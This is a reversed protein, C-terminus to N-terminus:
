GAPRRSCRRHVAHAAPSPAHHLIQLFHTPHRPHPCKIWICMVSLGLCPCAFRPVCVVASSQCRVGLDMAQEKFTLMMIDFDPGALPISVFHTIGATKMASSMLMEIRTRASEVGGASGVITVREEGGRRPITVVTKTELEIRRKGEGKKGILKGMFASPVTVAAGFRGDERQEIGAAPGGQVPFGSAGGVGNGSSSTGSGGLEAQFGTRYRRQVVAIVKPAIVQINRDPGAADDIEM